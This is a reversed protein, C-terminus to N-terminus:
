FYSGSFENYIQTLESDNLAKDYFLIQGVIAYTYEGSNPNTGAIFAGKNIALGNPGYGNFGSLGDVYANNIFASASPQSYQVGAMIRWNNDEGFNTDSVFNGNYWAGPYVDAYNGFLWNNSVGNLIRGHQLASSGSNKAVLIISTSYDTSYNPQVGNETVELLSSSQFDLVGGNENLKTVGSLSATANGYSAIWDGTGSWTSGDFWFRLGDTPIGPALTTTTTTSTTTTSTTTTPIPPGFSRIPKVWMDDEAPDLGTRDKDWPFPAVGGYSLDPFILITDAQTLPNGTFGLIYSGSAQTSTWYRNLATAIPGVNSGSLYEQGLVFMEDRTPLYWDNYGDNTYSDAVSAAIPREACGNLIATTNGQGYGIGRYNADVINSPKCGWPIHQIGITPAAILGSQNPFSGTVYFVYGGDRYQGIEYSGTPAVTTTTTSTTTTTTGGAGIYQFVGITNSQLSGTFTHYTYSGSQVIVGGYAVPTGAYRIRVMGPGSPGLGWNGGGGPDPSSGPLRLSATTSEGYGGACYTLGDLWVSGSGGPTPIPFSKGIGFVGGGGGAGSNAGTGGNFGASGTGGASFNIVAGGGGCAGNWGRTPLVPAVYDAAGGNGGGIAITDLFISSSGSIQTHIATGTTIKAAVVPLGLSSSITTSGTVFAGAGGGGSHAEGGAGVILYEIFLPALTTTTTTTPAATTTTTSTTSTTTTGSCDV